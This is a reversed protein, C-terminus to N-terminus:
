CSPRHLVWCITAPQLCVDCLPIIAQVRGRWTDHSRGAEVEMCILGVAAAEMHVSSLALWWSILLLRSPVDGAASPHKANSCHWGSGHLCVPTSDYLPRPREAAPTQSTNPGVHSMLRIMSDEEKHLESRWCLVGVPLHGCGAAASRV